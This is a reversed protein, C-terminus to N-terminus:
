SRLWRARLSSVALVATTAPLLTITLADWRALGLGLFVALFIVVAAATATLIGAFTKM